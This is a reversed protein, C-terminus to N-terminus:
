LVIVVMQPFLTILIYGRQNYINNGVLISDGFVFVLIIQLLIFVSDISLNLTAVSDCGNSNLSTYTYSGSSTYTQGNWNYSDCASVNVSSSTSNNILLNLINTETCGLANIGIVTDVVSSTYTVGNISWTYSNCVTDVVTSITSTYNNLRLYKNRFM